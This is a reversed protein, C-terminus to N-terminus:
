SALLSPATLYHSQGIAAIYAPDHQMHSSPSRGFFLTAVKPEHRHLQFLAGFYRRSLFIVVAAAAATVHIMILMITLMVIMLMMVMM